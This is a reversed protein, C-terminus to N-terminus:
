LGYPRQRLQEVSGNQLSLLEPCYKPPHASSHTLLVLLVMAVFILLRPPKARLGCNTLRIYTPSLSQPDETKEDSFYLYHGNGDWLAIVFTSHFSSHSAGPRSHISPAQHRRQGSWPFHTCGQLGSRSLTSMWNSRSVNASSEPLPLWPTVEHLGVAPQGATSCCM